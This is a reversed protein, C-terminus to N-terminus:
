IWRRVRRKYARYDDGFKGELYTEERGIIGVQFILFVPVGFALPWPSNILLSIGVYLMMMSLYIPNRSFRFSHTQVISTTPRRVDIATNAKLLARVAAVAIPISLIILIVGFTTAIVPPMIHVPLAWDFVAGIALGGIAILPPIAVVNARDAM